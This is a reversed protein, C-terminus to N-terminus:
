VVRDTTTERERMIKQYAYNVKQTALIAAKTLDEDLGLPAIADPHVAKIRAKYAARIEAPTASPSVRLMEYPDFSKKSIAERITEQSFDEELQEMEETDDAKSDQETLSLIQTKAILMTEGSQHRVPIFTRDDNLLDLCREGLSAFITVPIDEEIGKLRLFVDIENRHRFTRNKSDFVSM